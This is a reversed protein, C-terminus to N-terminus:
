RMVVLAGRDFVSPPASFSVSITRPNEDVTMQADAGSWSMNTASVVDDWRKTLGTWSFSVGATTAAQNGVGIVISDKLTNSNLNMPNSTSTSIAYPTTNTLGYLSYSAVGCCFLSSSTNLIVTSSTGTPVSLGYIAAFGNGLAVSALSTAANGDITIGTITPSGLFIGRGTVSIIVFRSPNAVGTSFGSFNYSTAVTTSISRTNYTYTPPVSTIYPNILFSM